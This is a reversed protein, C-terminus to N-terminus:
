IIELLQVGYTDGVLVLKGRAFLKGNVLVDVPDSASRNTHLLSEDALRAAEEVTIDARGWEVTIRVEVDGLGSLPQGTQASSLEGKPVLQRDRDAKDM